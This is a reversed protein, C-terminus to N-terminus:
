LCDYGLEAAKCIKKARQKKKTKKKKKKALFSMM